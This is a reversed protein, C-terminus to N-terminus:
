LPGLRAITAFHYAALLVFVAVALLATALLVRYRRGKWIVISVGLVVAAKFLAAGEPSAAILRALVANGEVAGHAFAHLSFAWDAASLANLAVLLGLLYLPHDRIVVLVGSGDRRDFGSRRQAFRFRIPKHRRDRSTRLDGSM